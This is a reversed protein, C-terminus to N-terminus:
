GSKILLVVSIVWLIYNLYNQCTKYETGMAIFYLQYLNCTSSYIILCKESIKMQNKKTVELPLQTTTYAKSTIDSIIYYGVFHQEVYRQLVPSLKNELNQMRVGEALSNREKQNGALQSFVYWQSLENIFM